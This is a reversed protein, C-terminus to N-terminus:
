GYIKYYITAGFVNIRLNSFRWYYQGNYYIPTSTVANGHSWDATAGVIGSDNM